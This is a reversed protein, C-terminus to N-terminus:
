KASSSILLNSSCKQMKRVANAELIIAYLWSLNWFKLGDGFKGVIFFFCFVEIQGM